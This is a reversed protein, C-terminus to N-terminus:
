IDLQNIFMLHLLLVMEVVPSELLLAGNWLMQWQMSFRLRQDLALHSNQMLM